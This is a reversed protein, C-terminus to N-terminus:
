ELYYVFPRTRFILKFKQFGPNEDLTDKVKEFSYQRGDTSQLYGTVAEDKFDRYFGNLIPSVVEDAIM